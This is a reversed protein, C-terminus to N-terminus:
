NRFANLATGVDAPRASDLLYIEPTMTIVVPSIGAAPPTGRANEMEFQPDVLEDADLIVVAPRKSEPIDIRNRYVTRVGTVTALLVALRALIAERKDIQAM